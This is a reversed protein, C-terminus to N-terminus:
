DHAGLRPVPSRSPERPSMWTERSPTGSVPSRSMKPAGKLEAVIAAKSDVRVDHDPPTHFPFTQVPFEHDPPMQGVAAQDPFEHDPFEHDPLEQDPFEQDPFEHDPLEHDDANQPYSM